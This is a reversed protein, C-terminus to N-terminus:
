LTLIGCASLLIILKSFLIDHFGTVCNDAKKNLINIYKVEGTCTVFLLKAIYLLVRSRDEQNLVVGHIYTINYKNRLSRISNNHQYKRQRKNSTSSLELCRQSSM